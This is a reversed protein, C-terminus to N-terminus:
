CKIYTGPGVFSKPIKSRNKGELERARVALVHKFVSFADCNPSHCDKLGYRFVNTQFMVTHHSTHKCEFIHIHNRTHTNFPDSVDGIISYRM